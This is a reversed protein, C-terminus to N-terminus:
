IAKSVPISRIFHILIAAFTQEGQVNINDVHNILYWNLSM